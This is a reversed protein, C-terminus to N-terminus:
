CWVPTVSLDNQKMDSQFNSPSHNSYNSTESCGILGICVITFIGLLVNYILTYHVTIKQVTTKSIYKYKLKAVVLIVFGRKKEIM